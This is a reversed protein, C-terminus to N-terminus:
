FSCGPERRKDDHIDHGFGFLHFSFAFVDDVHFHALRIKRRRFCDDVRSDNREFVVFGTVRVSQPKKFQPLRDAIEIQPLVAYGNRGVLDEDGRFM